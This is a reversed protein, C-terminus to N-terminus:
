NRQNGHLRLEEKPGDLVCVFSHLFARGILSKDVLSSSHIDAQLKSKGLSVEARATYLRVRRADPMVAHYNDPTLVSLLGLSQFLPFPILIAGGFGTDITLELRLGGFALEITPAPPKQERNYKWSQDLSLRM